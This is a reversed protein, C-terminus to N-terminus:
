KPTVATGAAETGTDLTKTAESGSGQTADMGSKKEIAEEEQVQTETESAAFAAANLESESQTEAWLTPSVALSLAFLATALTTQRDNTKPPEEPCHARLPFIRDLGRQGGLPKGAEAPLRHRQTVCDPVNWSVHM